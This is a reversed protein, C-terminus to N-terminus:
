RNRHWENVVKHLEDTVKFSMDVDVTSVLMFDEGPYKSNYYYSTLIPLYLISEKSLTIHNKVEDYISKLNHTRLLEDEKMYIYLVSKLLKECVQQALMTCNSTNKDTRRVDNMLFNYDNNAIDLYSNKVKNITSVESDELHEVITNDRIHQRVMMLILGLKNEGKGNVAGWYRDGWTNGEILFKYGTSLLKRRLEPYKTFKYMNLDYMIKLKDQEFGNRMNVQRGLKKAKGPPLDAFALKESETACKQAQYAAETSKYTIGEYTINCRYFNSLFDYNGTFESVVGAETRFLDSM